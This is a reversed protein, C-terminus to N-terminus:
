GFRMIFSSVFILLCQIFTAIGTWTYAAENNLFVDVMIFLAAAICGLGIMMAAILFGRAICAARKDTEADSIQSWLLLNIMLFSVTAGIGPLWSYANASKAVENGAQAGLAAGDIYIWWAAGFLVGALLSSVTARPSVEDDM